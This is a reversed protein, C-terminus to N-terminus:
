LAVSVVATSAGRCGLLCKSWILASVRTLGRMKLQRSTHLCPPPTCNERHTQQVVKHALIALSLPTRIPPSPPVAPLRQM